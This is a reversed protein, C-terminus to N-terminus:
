RNSSAASISLVQNLDYLSGNVLSKPVGSLVQISTMVRQPTTGDSTLLKENRGILANAQQMQQQTPQANKANEDAKKMPM